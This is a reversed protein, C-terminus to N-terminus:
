NRELLKSRLENSETILREKALKEGSLRTELHKNEKELKNIQIDKQIILGSVNELTKSMQYELDIFVNELQEKDLELLCALNSKIKVKNNETIHINAKLQSDCMISVITKNFEIITSKKIQLVRDVNIKLLLSLTGLKDLYMKGDVEFIHGDFIEKNSSIIKGLISPNEMVCVATDELSICYGVNQIMKLVIEVGEFNIVKVGDEEIEIPNFETMSLKHSKLRYIPNSSIGKSSPNIVELLGTKVIEIMANRAQQQTITLDKAIESYKKIFTNESTMNDIIYDKLEDTFKRM